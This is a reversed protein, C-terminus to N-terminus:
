ARFDHWHGHRTGLLPLFVTAMLGLIGFWKHAVFDADASLWAEGGLQETALRGFFDIISESMWYLTVLGGVLLM